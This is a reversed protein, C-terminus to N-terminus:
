DMTQNNESPWEGPCELFCLSTLILVWSSADTFGPPLKRARPLRLIQRLRQAQLAWSQSYISLNKKKLRFYSNWSYIQETKYVDSPGWQCGLSFEEGPALIAECCFLKAVLSFQGVRLRPSSPLPPSLKYRGRCLLLSTLALPCDPM